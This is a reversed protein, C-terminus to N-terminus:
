WGLLHKHLRSSGASSVKLEGEGGGESQAGDKDGQGKRVEAGGRQRSGPEVSAERRSAM